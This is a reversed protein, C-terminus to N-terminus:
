AQVEETYAVTIRYDISSGSGHNNVVYAKATFTEPVVVPTGFPFPLQSINAEYTDTVTGSDDQIEIVLNINPDWSGSTEALTAVQLRYVGADTNDVVTYKTSTSGSALGAGTKNFSTAKGARLAADDPREVNRRPQRTLTGGSTIRLEGDADGTPRVWVAEGPERKINHAGGSEAIDGKEPVAPKSTSFAVYHDESTPSVTFLRKDSRESVLQTWEGAPITKTM